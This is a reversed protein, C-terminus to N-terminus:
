TSHNDDLKAMLLLKINDAQEKMLNTALSM